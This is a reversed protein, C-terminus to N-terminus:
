GLRISIYHLESVGDVIVITGLNMISDEQWVLVRSLNRPTIWDKIFENLSNQTEEWDLDTLYQLEGENFTLPININTPKVIVIDLQTFVDEISNLRKEKSDKYTPKEINMGGLKALFARFAEEATNGEALGVHYDGTFAAGVAAIGGLEAVVGGAGATYIPIFYVDHEGIRYLINDGIRPDRLLTRKTAFDPNRELAELVASPGLLKTPSDLAVEYFVMEGLNPYDNQVVMYGALNRGASGRLELSLLGLFEPETFGPPQEIVYYPVLGSPIEFFEKAEIFTRAESVHFLSFM